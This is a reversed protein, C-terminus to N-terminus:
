KPFSPRSSASSRSARREPSASLGRMRSAKLWGQGSQSVKKQKVQKVSRSPLYWSPAQGLRAEVREGAGAPEHEGFLGVVEAHALRAHLTHQAAAAWSALSSGLPSARLWPPMSTPGHLLPDVVPEAVRRSRKPESILELAASKKAEPRLPRQRSALSKVSCTASLASTCAHRHDLTAPQLHLVHGQAVRHVLDQAALVHLVAFPPRLLQFWARSSSPEDKRMESGDVRKKRRWPTYASRASRRRCPSGIEASSNSRRPARTAAWDSASRAYTLLRM